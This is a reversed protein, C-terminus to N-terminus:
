EYSIRKNIIPLSPDNAKNYGIRHRPLWSDWCISCLSRGSSHIAQSCGCCISGSMMPEYEGSPMEVDRIWSGARTWGNTFDPTVVAKFGADEIQEIILKSNHIWDIGPVPHFDIILARISPQVIDYGYEAGEVDVKVITGGGLLM